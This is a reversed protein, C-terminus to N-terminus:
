IPEAVPKSQGVGKLHAAADPTLRLLTGWAIGTVLGGLHAANDIFRALFGLSINIGVCLAMEAILLKRATIPWRQRYRVGVALLIGILGFIGGSAGISPLPNALVSAVFGVIGASFYVLLLRPWGFLNEVMQGFALLAAFNFLLHGLGAHLFMPTLLRWVEGAHIRDNVKAFHELLWQDPLVFSLAFPLVISGVLLWTVRGPRALHLRFARDEPTPDPIVGSVDGAERMAILKKQQRALPVIPLGFVTVLFV